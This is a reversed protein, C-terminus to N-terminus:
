LKLKRWLSKKSKSTKKVAVDGLITIPDPNLKIKMASNFKKDDDSIVIKKTEYGIFSILLVDGKKLKKPFVFKGNFDTQTGITTGQLLISAGPLIGSEDTIIGTITYEKQMMVKGQIIQSNDNEIIITPQKQTQADSTGIMGLALLSFSLGSLLNLRRTRLISSYEYTKLQSARFNGCVTGKNNNFFTM